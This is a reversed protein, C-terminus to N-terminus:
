LDAFDTELLSCIFQATLIVANCFQKTQIKALFLYYIQHHDANQGKGLAGLMFDTIM